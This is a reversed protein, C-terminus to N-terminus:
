RAPQLPEGGRSKTREGSRGQNAIGNKLHLYNPNFEAFEQLGAVDHITLRKGKLTILGDGRLQQLVRNVHVTSVGLTDGLEEQTLPFEFSDDMTCGVSQLRLLLECFLHAMRKDVPRRGANVLWERLTAEDVLTAWWLARNIAPHKFTLEEITERPMFAIKCPALTAISHDMEGLISVHLDCLDGPVLWAMIQREGNSLTKYRCAFGELVAHVNHPKDGERILDERAGVQRVQSIAKELTQRDEELLEAGHELKWILPNAVDNEKACLQRCEHCFL